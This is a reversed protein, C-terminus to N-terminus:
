PPLDTRALTSLRLREISGQCRRPSRIPRGATPPQFWGMIPPRGKRGTAQTIIPTPVDAPRAPRNRDIRNPRRFMGGPRKEGKYATPTLDRKGEFPAAAEGGYEEEAARRHYSPVGHQQGIESVTLARM